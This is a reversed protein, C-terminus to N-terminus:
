LEVLDIRLIDTLQLDQAGVVDTLIGGKLGTQDHHIVSQDAGAFEVDEREVWRSAGLVPARM